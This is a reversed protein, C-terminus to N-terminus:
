GPFLTAMHSVTAAVLDIATRPMVGVLIILLALPLAAFIEHPKLDDLKQWRPNSPGFFLRSMARLSYGATILIGITAIGSWYGYREFTGILTHLESTFGALGPLGMSGLLALSMFVSFRPMTSALGGFDRVDRTSTRDQLAGVLLFLASSTLGHTFMQLTAGSIGAMNLSSVGILVFGMHSMSAYAVMLKLDTQRFALLAGYIINVFGLLLLLPVMSSAGVPLLVFLRLLGYAGMKALVASFVMSVPTKSEVYALPQWGHLPFVPIKVAIGAFFGLFLLIQTPQGIGASTRAMEEMGFSHEPLALHLALIAVLMFVSGALTYLFFSMSASSRNKGGWISVLFFLPVLTLEWFVYFLSWSLSTFVGLVAFELFLFWAFYSKVRHTVHLSALLAVLVVLTTLLVMPYSLGDVGLAASAHPDPSWPFPTIFQLASTTRDFRPLLGWSFLAALSAHFLAVRPVIRAHRAPVFVIVIAGLLPVLTTLLLLSPSPSPSPM